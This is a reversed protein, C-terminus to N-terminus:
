GRRRLGEVSERLVGFVGGLDLRATRLFLKLAKETADALESM